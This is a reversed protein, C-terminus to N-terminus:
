SGRCSFGIAACKAFSHLECVKRQAYGLGTRKKPDLARTPGTVFLAIYVMRQRRQVTRLNHPRECPIEWLRIYVVLYAAVNWLIWVLAPSVRTREYTGPIIAVNNETDRVGMKETEWIDIPTMYVVDSRLMAVRTYKINETQAHAEMLNWAQEISHWM